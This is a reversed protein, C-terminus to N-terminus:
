RPEIKKLNAIAARIRKRQTPGTAPDVLQARLQKLSERIRQPRKKKPPVVPWVPVPIPTLRPGTDRRHSALGNLGKRYDVIQDAAAPSLNPHDVVIGHIHEPWDGEAPTRVSAFMGAKRLELVARHKQEATLGRTSFDAAGGEAHTGASKPDGGSGQYSGQTIILQFGLAKEAREIVSITLADVNRRSRWLPCVLRPDTM